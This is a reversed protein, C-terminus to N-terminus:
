LAHHAAEERFHRLFNAVLVRDRGLFQAARARVPHPMRVGTMRECATGFELAGALEGLCKTGSICLPFSTLRPADGATITGLLGNRSPM